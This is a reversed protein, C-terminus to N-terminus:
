THRNLSEDDIVLLFRSTVYPHPVHSMRTHGQLCEDNFQVGNRAYESAVDDQLNCKKCACVCRFSWEFRVM